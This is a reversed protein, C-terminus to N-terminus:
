SQTQLSNGFSWYIHIQILNVQVRAETLDIKLALEERTFVDPYHTKTFTRELEELQFSTFTTRYRRQKRRDECRKHSRHCEDILHDVEIVDSEDDTTGQCDESSHFEAIEERSTIFNNNTPINKTKSKHRSIFGTQVDQSEQHSCRFNGLEKQVDDMEDM